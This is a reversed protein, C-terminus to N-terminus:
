VKPILSLLLILLILAAFLRHALQLRKRVGDLVPGNLDHANLYAALLVKLQEIDSKDMFTNYFVKWNSQVPGHFASPFLASLCLAIEFAYLGAIALVGAQYIRLYGAKPHINLISLLALLAIILSSASLLSRATAKFSDMSADQMKLNHKMMEISISLGSGENEFTVDSTSM